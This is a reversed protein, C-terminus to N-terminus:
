LDSIDCDTSSIDWILKTFFRGLVLCFQSLDDMYNQYVDSRQQSMDDLTYPCFGELVFGGLVFGGLVFGGLVFGMQSLVGRPCFGELVFGRQSM